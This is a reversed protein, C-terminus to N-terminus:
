GDNGLVRRREDIPIVAGRGVAILARYVAEAVDDSPWEGYTTGGLWFVQSLGLEVGGRVIRADPFEQLVFHKAAGLLKLREKRGQDLDEDFSPKKMLRRAEARLKGGGIDYEDSPGVYLYPDVHEFVWRTPDAVRGNPLEIWGHRCFGLHARDGFSSKPDIKGTFHGYRPTGQVLKADVIMCAVAYCNGPWADVPFKIKKALARISPFRTKSKM